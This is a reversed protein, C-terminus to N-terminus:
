ESKNYFSKQIVPSISEITVKRISTTQKNETISKQTPILSPSSEENNM